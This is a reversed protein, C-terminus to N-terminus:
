ILEVRPPWALSLDEHLLTLNPNYSPDNLLKPGWRDKMRDVEENFRVQKEPTDEIGRSVSEHHIMEAYPTWVNRYGAERVRICFDVDNFAVAFSEDLGGVKDYVDHRVMLCAGTVAGFSQHLEARGFYGADGRRAFKHSHGAVGGIGLFVGGHQLRGDPYWLRAGVCGIDPRASFTIMEELWDRTLIEIDNNMLCLIEGRAEKAGLNNLKSFNFASDDRIVRVRDSPLGSFYAMTAAEVSGNDVIVIEWASYSSLKFISDICTKLLDVRDRTPIIVSVLPLRTPLAYRVRNFMPVAPAPEVTALQGLRKLHEAVARCAAATAYNKEGISLATSGSFARWHYLVRPIHHVQSPSIIELVRLALDYDQAGEFGTRFGGVSTVLERRYVGLHCIMNQALMLEPNLDSKFYPGYRSGSESIKDEDSYVLGLDPQKQIADAVWFLAHMPLLDDHDLLAIFEGTALELASNSAVSIHGNKLRYAVKVRPDDEEHKKLLELVLHNTSADDAICLEWNAYLQRRVSWIAADLFEIPPDYVPMVISFKPQWSMAAIREAIRKLSADELTDYRRVWEDYNNSSTQVVDPKPDDSIPKRVLKRVNNLRWRVGEIGEERLVKGALMVTSTVGGGLEISKSLPRLLNLFIAFPRTILRLPASLRWSWSNKVQLLAQELNSAHIQLDTLEAGRLVLQAELDMQRRALDLLNFDKTQVAIDRQAVLIELDLVTQNLRALHQGKSTLEIQLDNLQLDKAELDSKNQVWEEEPPRLLSSWNNEEQPIASNITGHLILNGSLILEDMGVVVRSGLTNNKKSSKRIVCVSNFFEISHISKLVDEDFEVSYREGFGSILQIRTKEVGLHEHNVVDALRKFFAMSSYPYYLGGDFESWYSCHLDEAVFLGGDNIKSFYRAFTKIIDSSKHSGDDIIIDFSPSCHTINDETVDSNVDGIIIHVKPEDYTLKGCCPNIDCGLIIEANPFYKQWIELSGGNQVGIELLRIDKNRLDFFLRDYERLYIDWKDSVRGRHEFYFDYLSKM